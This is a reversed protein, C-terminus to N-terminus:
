EEETNEVNEVVYDEDDDEPPRSPTKEKRRLLKMVFVAGGALIVLLLIVATVASSSNDEPEEVPQQVEPEPEPEQEPEPEPEEGLCAALDATCVPCTTDIKGVQCRDRCSCLPPAEEPEPEEEGVLAPLDAADVLNLFYTQYQEEEENIPSDYDIVLYFVTGDKTELTVFQKNTAKDYLLDRTIANGEGTFGSGPEPTEAKSELGTEPKSEAGLENQSAEPKPTTTVPTTTTPQTQPAPQPEPEKEPEPEPESEVPCDLPESEPLCDVTASATAKTGNARTAQVQVTGNEYVPLTISKADELVWTFDYWPEGPVKVLISTYVESGLTIIAAASDQGTQDIEVSIEPEQASVSCLLSAALCLALLCATLRKGM